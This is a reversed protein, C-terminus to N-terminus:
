TNIWMYFWKIKWKKRFYSSLNLKWWLFKDVTVKILRFTNMRYLELSCPDTSDLISKRIEPAEESILARSYCCCGFIIIFLYVFDSVTACDICLILKRFFQVELPRVLTKKNDSLKSIIDLSNILLVPLRHDLSLLWINKSKIRVIGPQGRLM